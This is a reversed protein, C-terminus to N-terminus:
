VRSELNCRLKRLVSLLQAVEADSLCSDVKLEVRQVCATCTVLLDRGRASLRIRKLRRDTRSGALTILGKLNMRRVVGVVTPSKINLRKALTRLPINDERCLCKLVQWQRMTVGCTSLEESVTKKYSEATINLLSIIGNLEDM